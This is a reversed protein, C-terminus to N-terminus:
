KFFISYGNIKKRKLDKENYNSCPSKSYMCEQGGSYFFIFNKNEDFVKKFVKKLNKGDDNM